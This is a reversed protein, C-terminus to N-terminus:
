FLEDHHNVHNIKILFKDFQRMNTEKASTECHRQDCVVWNDLHYTPRIM